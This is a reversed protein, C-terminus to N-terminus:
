GVALTLHSPELGGIDHEKNETRVSCRDKMDFVTQFTGKAIYPCPEPQDRYAGTIRDLLDFAEEGQWDDGPQGPVRPRGL